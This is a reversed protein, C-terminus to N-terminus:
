LVHNQQQQPIHQAPTLYSSAHSTVSDTPLSEAATQSVPQAPTLHSSTPSTVSNFLDTPLHSPIMVLPNCPAATVNCSGQSLSTDKAPFHTEDFVVNRFLYTKHTQLDLCHYGKQNAGYGLFICPKSRFSLKHNAYPRLLPYCLCEFTRLITYDLPGKFLKSFPSENKLVPSPLQNILYISTLFSDVYYKTSLGVQARLTLGMEMAHRHKREAIGNQQSTYPCTLRHLIGHLTSGVM